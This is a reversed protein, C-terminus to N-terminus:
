KWIGRKVTNDPSIKNIRTYRIDVEKGDAKYVNMSDITKYLNNCLRSANRKLAPLSNANVNGIFVDGAYVKAAFM